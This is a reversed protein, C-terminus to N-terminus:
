TLLQHRKQDLVMAGLFHLPADRRGEIYEAFKHSIDEWLPEWHRERNWVYQRQFLPVEIQMKTEFLDLVAAANAEM